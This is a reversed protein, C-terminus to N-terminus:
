NKQLITISELHYTQPFMDVPRSAMIEYGSKQLAALDRALTPPDCSVYLIKEPKLQPILRVADLAGTRPPDLLVVDFYEGRRVLEQIGLASDKCFFRTNGLANRRSNSVADEISQRFDEYGVVEACYHAFPLSFNGNGCFLDLVRETGKIEAWRLAAEILASNQHYNVQSFGGCRFSLSMGPFGNVLGPPLSYSVKEDGWVKRISSKRGCQLFVGTVPVQGPIERGLWATVKEPREGIYHFLVVADGADGTAVDIQPVRDPEPFGAMLTRLAFFIENVQKDAIACGCPTDIVYHTGKRFFGMHLIGGVYRVKFQVRSRYGYPLPSSLIPQIRKRDVRTTRMLIEAFIDEKAKGQLDYPLHQWSCGGCQRFVPCPPAIRHPSPEVFELIEGEMYSKKEAVIRVRVTDGVATFPVFCVKGAVRGLGAGGFTLTEIKILEERVYDREM